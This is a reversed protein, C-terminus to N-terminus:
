AFADEWGYPRHVVSTERARTLLSAAKFAQERRAAQASRLLELEAFLTTLDYYAPAPCSEMRAEGRFDLVKAPASELWLTELADNSVPAAILWAAKHPLSGLAESFSLMPGKWGEVKAPNRVLLTVPHNELWPLIDKALRGAGVVVVPEGTELRKRTLSGYSQSGLNTLHTRRIKKVDEEVADFLSDWASHWVQADRFAKFQGFIETEGLLPSHLGSCVEV